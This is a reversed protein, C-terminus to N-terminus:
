ASPSMRAHGGELCVLDPCNDLVKACLQYTCPVCQEPILPMPRGYIKVQLGACLEEPGMDAMAGFPVVVLLLAVAVALLLKRM